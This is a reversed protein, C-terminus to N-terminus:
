DESTIYDYNEKHIRFRTGLDRVTQVLQQDGVKQSHHKYYLESGRMENVILMYSNGVEKVILTNYGAQDGNQKANRGGQLLEPIKDKFMINELANTHPKYSLRGDSKTETTEPNLTM